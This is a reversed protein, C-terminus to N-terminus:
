VGLRERIAKAIQEVSYAYGDYKLIRESTDILFTQQVLNAFQGTANQEIFIVRKAKEFYEKASPHIPYVQSFHLHAIKHNLFSQLAEEVILYTSGWSVILVEYDKPGSLKPPLAEQIIKNM